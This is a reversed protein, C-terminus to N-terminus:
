ADYICVDYIGVQMMCVHKMRMFMMYVLMM